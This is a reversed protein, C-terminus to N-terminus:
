WEVEIEVRPIEGWHKSAEIKWVQSDDHFIVKNLGDKVSKLCNDLDPRQSHADGEKLKKARSPPIAFYFKARLICATSIIPEQGRAQNAALKVLAEYNETERPTYNVIVPQGSKKRGIFSRHRGKAVPESPIQFRIIM